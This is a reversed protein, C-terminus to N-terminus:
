SSAAARPPAVPFCGGPPKAAVKGQSPLSLRSLFPTTEAGTRRVPAIFFDLKDIM